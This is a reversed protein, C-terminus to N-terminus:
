GVALYPSFLTKEEDSLRHPRLTDLNIFLGMQLGEAVITKENKIFNFFLKASTKNLETLHLEIALKDGLLLPKKYSIETKILVPTIRRKILTHVALGIEELLKLRGIEMWEIYVINSVHQNFDIQYTYIEPSYIVKKMKSEM